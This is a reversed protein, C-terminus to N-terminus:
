YADAYGSPQTPPSPAIQMDRLWRVSMPIQSVRAGLLLNRAFVLDHLPHPILVKAQVADGVLGMRKRGKCVRDLCIM